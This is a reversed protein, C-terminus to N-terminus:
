VADPGIEALFAETTFVRGGCVAQSSFLSARHMIDEYDAQADAIHCIKYGRDSADRATTEVCQSTALGTFVLSQIDTGALHAGLDSTTFGSYTTKCFVKEGPQPAIEPAVDSHPDSALPYCDAYGRQAAKIHARVFHPHLDSRDAQTGCLRLYIVAGRHARWVQVLKLINPIVLTQCRETIYDLAGPHRNRFYRQFPAEPEVYYRQMDVVMLATHRLDIPESMARPKTDEPIRGGTEIVRSKSSFRGYNM